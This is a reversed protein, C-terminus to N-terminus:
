EGEQKSLLARIKDMRFCTIRATFEMNDRDASKWEIGALAEELERCRDSPTSRPTAAGDQIDFWSAYPGLADREVDGESYIGEDDELVVPKAPTIKLGESHPKNIGLHDDSYTATAGESHQGLAELAAAAKWLLLATPHDPSYLSAGHSRLEAIMEVMAADPTPRSLAALAARIQPEVYVTGTGEDFARCYDELATRVAKLQEPM